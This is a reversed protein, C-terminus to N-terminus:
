AIASIASAVMMEHASMHMDTSKPMRAAKAMVRGSLRRMSKTCRTAKM